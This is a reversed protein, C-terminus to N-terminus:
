PKEPWGKEVEGADRAPGESRVEPTRLCKRAGLSADEGLDSFPDEGAGGFKNFREQSMMKTSVEEV